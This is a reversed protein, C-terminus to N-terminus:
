CKNEEFNLVPEWFGTKNNLNIIKGDCDFQSCKTRTLTWKGDSSKCIKGDESLNFDKVCERTAKEICKCNEALLDFYRENEEVAKANAKKQYDAFISIGAVIVILVIAVLTIQKKNKQKM